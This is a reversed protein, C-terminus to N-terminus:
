RRGYGTHRQRPGRGSKRPRSSRTIPEARPAVFGEPLPLTFLRKQIVNEIERVEKGETVMAFTIAHGKNGARATRGIRHVYDEASGPLDYNVVLEIGMVDIGRSAIDTAVLVRYKGSKFGELAERRQSLSRNSHIEASQINLDRVQRAVKKAGHKTRMFVLTPGKYQQLLRRLLEPKQERAVIFLEQTVAELTTGPPTVEVRLPTKMYDKALKMIEPPMTASFLMTQRERPVNRLISKIQPLFGMDFMRDAEDLVVISVKSLSLTKQVLHDNIRGPTGVIIHPGNSIDRRQAGFPLGGILVATRLGQTKGIKRLSEEVQLALERTPLVILGQGKRSLLLQIMPIGFALTKGTGTQAIGVLDKGEIGLPISRAQIPTPKTFGAKLLLELIGPAIGLGYFNQEKNEQPEQM